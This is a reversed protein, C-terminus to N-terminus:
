ESSPECEEGFGHSTDPGCRSSAYVQYDQQFVVAHHREKQPTREGGGHGARALYQEASTSKERPHKFGCQGVVDGSAPQPEAGVHLVGRSRDASGAPPVIRRGIRVREGHNQM